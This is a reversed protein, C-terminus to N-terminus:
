ADGSTPKLNKEVTIRKWRPLPIERLKNPKDVFVRLGTVVFISTLVGYSILDSLM